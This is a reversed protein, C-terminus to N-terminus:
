QKLFSVTGIDMVREDRLIVNLEMPQLRHEPNTLFQFVGPNGRVSLRNGFTVQRWRVADNVWDVRFVLREEGAAFEYLGDM